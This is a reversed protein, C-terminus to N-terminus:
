VDIAAVGELPDTDPILADFDQTATDEDAPAACIREIERALAAVGRPGAGYAVAVHDQGTSKDDKYKTALRDYEVAANPAAFNRPAKAPRLVQVRDGGNAAALVPVEWEPMSRAFVTTESRTLKVEVFM